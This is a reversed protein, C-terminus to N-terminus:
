LDHHKVHVAGGIIGANNCFVCNIINAKSEVYLAGGVMTARNSCFRSGIVCLNGGLTDVGSGQFGSNSIFECDEIQVNASNNTNIAGGYFNGAFGTNRIFNSKKIVTIYDQITLVKDHLIHESFNSSTINILGELAPKFTQKSDHIQIVPGGYNKLFTCNEFFIIMKSNVVEVASALSVNLSTNNVFHCNVFMSTMDTVGDIKVSGAANSSFTSNMFYVFSKSLVQIGTEKSESFSYNLVELMLIEDLIYLFGSISKFFSCNILSVKEVSQDTRYFYIVPQIKGCNHFANSNM